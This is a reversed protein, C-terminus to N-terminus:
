LEESRAAIERMLDADSREAPEPLAKQEPQGGIYIVPRRNNGALAHIGPLVGPHGAGRDGATARYAELFEKRHWAVDQEPRCFAPWGGMALVARSTAADSFHVREYAGHDSVAEWAEAWALLARDEARQVGKGAAERMKAPPPFFECTRVCVGAARRLGDLSIDDLASVYMEVAAESMPTRFMESLGLIIACRERMDSM